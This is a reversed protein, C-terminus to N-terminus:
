KQFAFHAGAAQQLGAVADNQHLLAIDGAAGHGHGVAANGGCAGLQLVVVIHVAAEAARGGETKTENVYVENFDSTLCPFVM